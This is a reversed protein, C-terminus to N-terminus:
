VLFDKKLSVMISFCILVTAARCIPNLIKLKSIAKRIKVTSFNTPQNTSSALPAVIRENIASMKAMTKM